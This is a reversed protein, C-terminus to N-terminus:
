LRGRLLSLGWGRWCCSLPRRKCTPLMVEVGTLLLLAIGVRLYPEYQNVAMLYILPFVFMWVLDVFAMLGSSAVDEFKFHGLCELGRDCWSCRGGPSTCCTAARSGSFLEVVFLPVGWPIPPPPPPHQPITVKEDRHSAAMLEFAATFVVGCAMNRGALSRDRAITAGCLGGGAGHHPQM